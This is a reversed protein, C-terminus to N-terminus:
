FNLIAPKDLSFKKGRRASFACFSLNERMNAHSMPLAGVSLKEQFDERSM